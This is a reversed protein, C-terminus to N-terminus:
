TPDTGPPTVRTIGILRALRGATVDRSHRAWFGACVAPGFEPHPGYPLTSHCTLLADADLNARAVQDRRAPGVAAADEDRYICSVCRSELVRVKGDGGIVDGPQKRAM